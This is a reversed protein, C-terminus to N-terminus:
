IHILSLMHASAVMPFKGAPIYCGVSQVPINRHGLVVGPITEVELEFLSLCCSLSCRIHSFLFLNVYSFLPTLMFAASLNTLNMDELVFLPLFLGLNALM